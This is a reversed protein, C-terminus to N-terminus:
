NREEKTNEPSFEFYLFHLDHIGKRNEREIGEKM